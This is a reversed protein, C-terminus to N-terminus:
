FSSELHKFVFDNNTHIENQFHSKRIMENKYKKRRFKYSNKVTDWSLINNLNIVDHNVM